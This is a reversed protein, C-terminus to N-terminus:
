SNDSCEVWRLKQSKLIGFEVFASKATQDFYTPRSFCFAGPNTACYKELLRFGKGEDSWGRNLSRKQIFVNIEMGDM